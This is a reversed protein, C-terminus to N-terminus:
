LWTQHESRSCRDSIRLTGNWENVCASVTSDGWITVSYESRSCNPGLQAAGNWRNVCLTIPAEQPLKISTESRNCDADVRLAGNWQNACLLSATFTSEIAGIDCYQNYPRPNGLQDPEVGDIFDTDCSTPGRDVAISDQTLPYYSQEVGNVVTTTLSGVDLNDLDDRSGPGDLTCSTDNSLTYSDTVSGDSAIDCHDGDGALLVGELMLADETNLAASGAVPPQVITSWALNITSGDDSTWITSGASATNGSFTSSVVSKTANTAFSMAGGHGEGAGGGAANNIFSSQRVTLAGYSYIAGGFSAGDGGGAENGTFSSQSIILTGYNAIAGGYAKGSGGGIENNIFTSQSITMTGQTYIAGGYTDPDGGGSSNNIFTSQHIVAIGDDFDIAGGYTASENAIFTVDNVTLAGHHDADVAGGEGDDWGHQLTLHELTLDGTNTVVFFNTEANGDFVMPAGGANSGNISIAKDITITDGAFFPITNEVCDFTITDGSNASGVKNSLETWNCGANVTVEDALTPHPAIGVTLLLAATMTVAAVVRLGRM